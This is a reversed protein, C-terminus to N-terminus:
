QLKDVRVISSCHAAVACREPVLELKSALAKKLPLPLLVESVPVHLGKTHTCIWVFEVCFLSPGLNVGLVKNILYIM